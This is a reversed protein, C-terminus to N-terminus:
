TASTSARVQQINAIHSFQPDISPKRVIHNGLDIVMPVPMEDSYAASPAAGRSADLLDNVITSPLRRVCENSGMSDTVPVSTQM